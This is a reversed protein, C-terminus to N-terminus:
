QSQKRKRDRLCVVAIVIGVTLGAFLVGAIAALGGLGVSALVRAWWSVEPISSVSETTTEAFCSVTGLLAMLLLCAVVLGVFKNKM